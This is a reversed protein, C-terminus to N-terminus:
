ARDWELGAGAWGGYLFHQPTLVGGLFGRAVVEPFNYVVVKAEEDRLQSLYAM